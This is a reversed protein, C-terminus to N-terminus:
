DGVSPPKPSMGSDVAKIAEDRLKKREDPALDGLAGLYSQNLSALLIRGTREALSHVHWQEIQRVTEVATAIPLAPAPNQYMAHIIDAWGNKVGALVGAETREFHAALVPHRGFVEFVKEATRGALAQLETAEDAQPRQTEKVSTLM